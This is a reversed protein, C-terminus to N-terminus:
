KLCANKGCPNCNEIKYDDCFEMLNYNRFRNTFICGPEAWDYATQIMLKYLEIPVVEYTVKNGEYDRTINKKIIEGTDYYKRVCEMFEDDIELSLNAKQIRGEESKITIFQSAEKHWIDLSMLLAGKRSNSVYFGNCDFLHEKKLEIDYVHMEGVDTISDITDYIMPVYPIYDSQLYTHLGINSDKSIKKLHSANNKNIGTNNMTYPTSYRSNSAFKIESKEIKVSPIQTQLKRFSDTIDYLPMKNDRYSIHLSPFFGLMSFLKMIQEAYTKCVTSYKFSTKRITGDNDLAGGIFSAVVSVSGNM